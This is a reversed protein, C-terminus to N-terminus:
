DDHCVKTEHQEGGRSQRRHLECAGYGMRLRRRDDDRLGPFFQPRVSLRLVRLRLACLRRCCRRRMSSGGGRRCWVRSRRCRCRVSSRGRRRRMGCRGCCRWRTDRRRGRGRGCWMGRRRDLRADSRRSRRRRVRLGLDSTRRWGCARSRRGRGPWRSRGRTRRSFTLALSLRRPLCRRGTRPRRARGGIVPMLALLHRGALRRGQTRSRRARWRGRRRLGCRM